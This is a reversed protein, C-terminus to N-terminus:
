NTIPEQRELLTKFQDLPLSKDDVKARQVMSVIAGPNMNEGLLRAIGVGMDKGYGFVIIEDIADAEGSYYISAHRGKNKFNMLKKYESDKLITKIKQKEEEFQEETIKGYPVAAINIKKISEYAKKDAESVDESKMQIISTPVDLTIFETRDQSDVLYSQLSPKQKCSTVIISFLLIPIIYLKKM